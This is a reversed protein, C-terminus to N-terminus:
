NYRVGTDPVAIYTCSIPIGINKSIESNFFLKLFAPLLVSTNFPIEKETSLPSIQVRKPGEPEPFDVRRDM